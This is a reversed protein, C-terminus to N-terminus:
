GPTTEEGEGDPKLFLRAWSIGELTRRWTDGSRGAEFEGAPGNSLDYLFHIVEKLSGQILNAAVPRGLETLGTHFSHILQDILLMKTNATSAQPFEKHFVQFCEVANAGFLQKGKYTQHYTKWPLQWGCEGCHLIEGGRWPLPTTSAKPHKIEASCAPCIVRGYHAETVQLISDCRSWLAWGVEDVLEEDLFGNADSRYLREIKAKPVKPAWKPLRKDTKM